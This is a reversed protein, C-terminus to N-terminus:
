KGKKDNKEKRKELLTKAPKKKVEKKTDKAKSM